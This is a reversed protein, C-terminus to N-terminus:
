RLSSTSRSLQRKRGSNSKPSSNSPSPTGSTSSTLSPSSPTSSTSAALSRLTPFSAELILGDNSEDPQEVNLRVEKTTCPNCHTMVKVAFRAIKVDDKERRIELSYGGFVHFSTGMVRQSIEAAGMVAVDIRMGEGTNTENLIWIHDHERGERKVFSADLKWIKPPMPTPRFSHLSSDAEHRQFIFRMSDKPSCNYFYFRVRRGARVFLSGSKTVVKTAERGNALAVRPSELPLEDSSRRLSYTSSASSSLSPPSSSALSSLSSVSASRPMKKAKEKWIGPDTSIAANILDLFPSPRDGGSASGSFSATPISSTSARLRSRPKKGNAAQVPSFSSLSSVSSSLSPLASSLPPSPPSSNSTPPSIPLPILIKTEMQNSLWRQLQALSNASDFLLKLNSADANQITQLDDLLKATFGMQVERDEPCFLTSAYSQVVAGNKSDMIFVIRRQQGYNALIDQVGIETQPDNPDWDYPCLVVTAPSARVETHGSFYIVVTSPSPMANISELAGLISQRTAESDLLQTSQFGCSSFLSVIKKANEDAEYLYRQQRVMLKYQKIGISILHYASSLAQSSPLGLFSLLDTNPESFSRALTNKPLPVSDRSSRATKSFAKLNSLNVIAQQALSEMKMIPANPVPISPSVGHLSPSAPQPGLPYIGKHEPQFSKSGLLVDVPKDLNAPPIVEVSGPTTAVVKQMEDGFWCWWKEGAKVRADQVIVSNGSSSLLATSGSRGPSATELASVMLRLPNPAGNSVVADNQSTSLRARKNTETGLFTIDSDDDDDEDEDKSDDELVEDEAALWRSKTTPFKAKRKKYKKENFSFFVSCTRVEPAGRDDGYIERFTMVLEVTPPIRNRHHGVTCLFRLPLVRRVGAKLILFQEETVVVQKGENKFGLNNRENLCHPRSCPTMSEGTQTKCYIDLVKLTVRRDNQEPRPGAGPMVVGEPFELLAEDGDKGQLEITFRSCPHRAAIDAGHPTLELKLALKPLLPEPTKEGNQQIATVSTSASSAPSSSVDEMPLQDKEPASLASISLPHSLSQPIENPGRFHDNPRGFLTDSGAEAGGAHGNSAASYSAALCPPTDCAQMM